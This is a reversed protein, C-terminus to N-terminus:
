LLDVAPPVIGKKTSGVPKKPRGTQWLSRRHIEQILRKLRSVIRGGALMISGQLDPIWITRTAQRSGRPSVSSPTATILDFGM